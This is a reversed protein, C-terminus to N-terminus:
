RPSIELALLDHLQSAPMPRGLLFGQACECGERKLFALQAETEVGEGVIRLGLARALAIIARAIVSDGGAGIPELFSRDIKVADIPLQDLRSLASYGTGFDDLTLTTGRARLAEVTAQASATARMAVRETLEIDLRRPDFGTEGTLRDVMAALGGEHIQVASVNVALRLDTRGVMRDWERMQQMATRMIFDTLAVSLGSEEALRVIDVAPVPRGAHTWRILAELACIRTEPLQFLPQYHVDLNGADLAQRLAAAGPLAASWSQMDASYRQWSNRAEKAHYQAADAARLLAEKSDAQQPYLAVGVSCSVVVEHGDVAIPAACSSVLVRAVADADEPRRVNPLIVAFEDGSLRAVMDSSRMVSRMRRSVAGLVLDGFRHGYTDNVHKFRDLDVFLLAVAQQTSAAALAEGLTDEFLARNPLGTLMDHLAMRRLEAHRRETLARVLDLGTGLGVYKGARTVIFGDFVHGHEADVLRSGLADLSTAEDVILPQTEMFASVTKKIVLERGFRSALRELFKFRNVLGVPQGDRDVIAVAFLGADSAFVDRVQECPADPALPRAASAIQGASSPVPAAASALADDFSTEDRDHPTLV